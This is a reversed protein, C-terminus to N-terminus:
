QKLIIYNLKSIHSQNGSVKVKEYDIVSLTFVKGQVEINIPQQMPITRKISDIRLEIHNVNNSLSFQFNWSKDGDFVSVINGAAEGKQAIFGNEDTILQKVDIGLPLYQKTEVIKCLQCEPVNKSLWDVLKDNLFLQNGIIQWHHSSQYQASSLCGGLILIGILALTGRIM